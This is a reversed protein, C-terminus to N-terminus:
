ASVLEGADNRVKGALIGNIHNIFNSSYASCDISPHFDCKVISESAHHHEAEAVVLCSGIKVEAFSEGICQFSLSYWPGLREVLTNVIFTNDVFSANDM